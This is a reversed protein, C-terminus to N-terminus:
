SEDGGVTTGIAEGRAARLMNGPTLADFVVLPIRNDRCMSAATSDMVKLEKELVQSFSLHDYKVANPNVKPDSDYIGDITKAMLIVDAKIEAARLAAGTDTSFYPNGTGGVFIVIQGATLATLAREQTYLPVVRPMELASLVVTACGTKVLADKLALGNMVTALMGMYDASVREMGGKTGKIGRWLNGGGVVIALEVGSEHIEAIQAAFGELTDPDYGFGKSGSLSEGSVKLLVRRKKQDLATM